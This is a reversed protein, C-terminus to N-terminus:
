LVGQLGDMVDTDSTTAAAARGCVSGDQLDVLLGKTFTSGVDICATRVPDVRDPGVPSEPWGPSRSRSSCPAPACAPSSEACPRSM